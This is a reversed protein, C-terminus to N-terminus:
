SVASGQGLYNHLKSAAYSRELEEVDEDAKHDIM